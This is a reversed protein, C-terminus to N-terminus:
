HSFTGPQSATTSAWRDQLVCMSVTGLQRKHSTAFHPTVSSLYDMSTQHTHTHTHATVFAPIHRSSPQM